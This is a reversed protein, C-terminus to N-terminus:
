SRGEMQEFLLDRDIVDVGPLTCGLRTKWILRYPNDVAPCCALSAGLTQEVFVLPTHLKRCRQPPHRGTPPRRYRDDNEHLHRGQKYRMM